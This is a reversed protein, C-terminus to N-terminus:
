RAQDNNTGIFVKGGAVIPGGYSRSGLDAKWLLWEKAWAEDDPKSETPLKVGKATLNVMNRDNTGGFMVHDSRGGAAPDNNDAAALESVAYPIATPSSGTPAFAFYVAAAGTVLAAAGVATRRSFRLHSM